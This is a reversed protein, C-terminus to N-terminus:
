KISNSSNIIPSAWLRIPGKLIPPYPIGEDKILPHLRIIEWNKIGLNCKWKPNWDKGINNKIIDSM